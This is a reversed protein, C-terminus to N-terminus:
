KEQGPARFKLPIALAQDVEEVTLLPTTRINILGTSGVSISLAAAAVNDPADVIVVVDDYGLAFYLSEVKGKVSKMAAQVAAKRGSAKDKMLGKVGEPTYHGQILYKPM